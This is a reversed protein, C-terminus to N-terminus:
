KDLVSKSKKMDEELFHIAAKGEAYSYIDGQQQFLKVSQRIDAMGSSRDKLHFYKISGRSGYSDADTPDIQIAQDFDTLGGQIDALAKARLYGRNKYVTIDSNKLKIARNLDALGGQVDNLKGAKIAGRYNYLNAEDPKLQIARDLDAVSDRENQNLYKEIGSIIYDDATLMAAPIQRELKVGMNNAVMEFHMIPIAVDFKMTLNYALPVSSKIPVEAYEDNTFMKCDLKVMKMKIPPHNSIGHIAVLEGNSNLLAAGNVISRIPNLYLFSYGHDFTKNSNALVNGQTFVFPTLRSKNTNIGYDTFGAIYVNMGSKISSHNGLKANPYNSTSRFKVIALDTNDPAIQVSDPIIKYSQNDSTNITFDRDNVVQATTIVTYDDGKHQLIVGSGYRYKSKNISVVISKAINEIEISNQTTKSSGVICNHQLFVIIIIGIGTPLLVKTRLLM